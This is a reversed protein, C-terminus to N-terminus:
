IDFAPRQSDRQEMERLMMNFPAEKEGRVPHEGYNFENGEYSIGQQVLATSINNPFFNDGSGTIQEDKKSIQSPQVRAYNSSFPSKADNPMVASAMKISGREIDTLNDSPLISFQSITTKDMAMLQDFTPRQAFSSGAISSLKDKGNFSKGM